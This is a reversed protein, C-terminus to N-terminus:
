PHPSRHISHTVPDNERGMKCCRTLASVCHFTCKLGMAAAPLRNMTEALAHL